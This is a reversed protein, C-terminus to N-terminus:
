PTVTFSLNKEEKVELALTMSTAMMVFFMALTVLSLFFARNKTTM